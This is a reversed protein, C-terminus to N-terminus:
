LLFFFFFFFVLLIPLRMTTSVMEEHTLVMRQTMTKLSRVEHETEYLKEM